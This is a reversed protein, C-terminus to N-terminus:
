PARLSGHIEPQAAAPLVSKCLLDYTREESESRYRMSANAARRPWSRARPMELM